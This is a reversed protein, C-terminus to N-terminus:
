MFGIICGIVAIVLISFAGIIIYKKKDNMEKM